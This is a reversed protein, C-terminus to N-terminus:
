MHLYENYLLITDMKLVLGFIYFEYQTGNLLMLIRLRESLIFQILEFVFIGINMKNQFWCSLTSVKDMETGIFPSDIAGIMVSHARSIM